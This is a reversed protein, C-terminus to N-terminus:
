LDLNGEEEGNEPIRYNQTSRHTTIKTVLSVLPMRVAHFISSLRHAARKQQSCDGNTSPALGNGTAQEINTEVAAQHVVTAVALRDAQSLRQAARWINAYVIVMIITPGYFAVITAYIQYIVNQTM